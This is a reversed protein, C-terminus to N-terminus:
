NRELIIGPVKQAAGNNRSQLECKDVWKQWVEAAQKGRL